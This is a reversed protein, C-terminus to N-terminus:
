QKIGETALTITITDGVVKPVGKVKFDSLKVSFTGEFALREKGWPDKGQGLKTLKVTVSKTVGALVLDGTVAYGKGAKKVKTSTFTIKPNVKVNLFDPSKLHTDRKKENTYVSDADVEVTVSSEAPKKEDLSFKGTVNRFMGYVVGIDFHTARFLVTTHTPDLQYSDAAQAQTALLGAACAAFLTTRSTRHTRM